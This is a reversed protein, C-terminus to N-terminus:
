NATKNDPHVTLDRWEHYFFKKEFSLPSFSSVLAKCFLSVFLTFGVRNSLPLPLHGVHGQVCTNRTGPAGGM